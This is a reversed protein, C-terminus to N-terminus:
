LGNNRQSVKHHRIRCTSVDTITNIHILGMINEPLFDLPSKIFTPFDYFVTSLFLSCHKVKSSSFASNNSAKESIHSSIVGLCLSTIFLYQPTEEILVFSSNICNNFYINKGM